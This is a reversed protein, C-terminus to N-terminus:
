IRKDIALTQLGIAGGLSQGWIGINKNLGSIKCITDVFLKLDDKEYFGYTCYKGDSEGHARLDIIVSNYGSDALRKSLALYAEKNSRIGHVLILTAKQRASDTRIIYGYLKLNDKTKLCIKQYNLKLDSIQIIENKSSKKLASYLANNIRIIMRPGFYNFVLFGSVIAILIIILRKKM